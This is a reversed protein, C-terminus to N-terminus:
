VKILDEAIEMIMDKNMLVKIWGKPIGDLGYFAGALGGTVAAQTDTDGGCKISVEIASAFNDTTLFSFLAINLTDFTYGSSPLDKQKLAKGSSYDELLSKLESPIQKIFDEQLLRNILTEKPLDKLIFAILVNYIVCTYAAMENNHTVIASLISKDIIDELSDRYVIGIPLCRMLAGNGGAYKESGLETPIESEKQNWLINLTHQGIGFGGSKADASMYGYNAWMQYKKFQDLTDFGKEILSKSLCLAMSTDDTYCGQKAVGFRTSNKSGLKHTTLYENIEKTDNFEFPMGLYDGCALGLLAGKIQSKNKKM